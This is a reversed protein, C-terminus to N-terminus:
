NVLNLNKLEQIKLNEKREDSIKMCIALEEETEIDFSIYLNDNKCLENIFKSFNNYEEKFIEIIESINENLSNLFYEIKMINIISEDYSYSNIIYFEIIANAINSYEKVIDFVSIISLHKITILQM